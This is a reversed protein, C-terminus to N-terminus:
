TKAYKRAADAFAQMMKLREPYDTCRWEPHFQTGLVFGKATPLSVAEIMGDPAKADIKLNEALKDIGQFHLSNVSIRKQDLIQHLLGGQVLDIEHWPANFSKEIDRDSVHAYHQDFGAKTVNSHLTGGFAVNLEQLGRCVALVPVGREIARRILPLTTSDRHADRQDESVEEAAGGYHKPDVNSVAGSVFLGDLRDLLSDIDGGDALSPILLPIADMGDTIAQIYSNYEWHQLGKPTMSVNSTVGILPKM